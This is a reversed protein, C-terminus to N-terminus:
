LSNGGKMVDCHLGSHQGDCFVCEFYPASCTDRCLIGNECPRLKNCVPGVQISNYYSKPTINVRNEPADVTANSSRSYSLSIDRLYHNLICSNRISHNSEAEIQM